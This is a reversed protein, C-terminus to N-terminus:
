VLEEMLVQKKELLALRVNDMQYFDREMEVLDHDHQQFVTEEMMVSEKGQLVCRVDVMQYFDREMKVHHDSEKSAVEKILALYSDMKVLSVHVM